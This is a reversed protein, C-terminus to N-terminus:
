AREEGPLEDRGRTWSSVIKLHEATEGGAGTNTVESLVCRKRECSPALGRGPHDSQRPTSDATVNRKKSAGHPRGSTKRVGVDKSQSM